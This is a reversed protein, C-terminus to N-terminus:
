KNALKAAETLQNVKATDSALYFARYRIPTMGYAKRFDRIFHSEDQMGIRLMIEKVTLFTTELLYLARQMRLHKLYKAPSMGIEDKFLHHLHSLSLNVSQAM